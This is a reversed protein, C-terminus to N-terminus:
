HLIRMTNFTLNQHRKLQPLRNKFVRFKYGHWFDGDVFVAKMKKPLAIDPNGPARKYHRQFYIRDARLRSFVLKEIKTNKSRIRSMIESRKRKSFIDVMPKITM